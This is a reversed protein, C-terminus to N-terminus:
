TEGEEKLWDLWYDSCSMYGDTCDVPCRRCSMGSLLIALDEDSMARIRDANTTKERVFFEESVFLENDLDIGICRWCPFGNPFAEKRKCKDCINQNRINAM